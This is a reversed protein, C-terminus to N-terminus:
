SGRLDTRVPVLLASVSALATPLLEAVAQHCMVLSRLHYRHLIGSKLSLVPVRGEMM